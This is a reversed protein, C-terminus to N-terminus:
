PRAEETAPPSLAPQAPRKTFIGRRRFVDVIADITLDVAVEAFARGLGSPAIIGEQTLFEFVLDRAYAKKDAGSALEIEAERVAVIVADILGMLERQHIGIWAVLTMVGRLGGILLDGDKGARAAVRAVAQELEPALPNPRLVLWWGFRALQRTIWVLPWTLRRGFTRVGPWEGPYNHWGERKSSIRYIAEVLYDIVVAYLFPEVFDPVDRLDLKIRRVYHVIAAKVVEKKVPGHDPDAGYKQQAVGMLEDILDVWALASARIADQNAAVKAALQTMVAVVDADKVVSTFAARLKLVTRAIALAREDQPARDPVWPELCARDFDGLMTLCAEAMRRRADARRTM